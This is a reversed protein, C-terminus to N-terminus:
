RISTFPAIKALELTVVAAATPGYLPDPTLKAKMCARHFRVQWEHGRRPLARKGIGDDFDAM